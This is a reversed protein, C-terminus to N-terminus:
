SSTCFRAWATSMPVGTSPALRPTTELYKVFHTHTAWLTVAHAAEDSPFAVYELLYELLDFLLGDPKEAEGAPTGKLATVATVDTVGVRSTPARDQWQPADSPTTKM